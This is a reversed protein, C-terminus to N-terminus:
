LTINISHKSNFIDIWNWDPYFCFVIVYVITYVILITMGILGGAEETWEGGSLLAILNWIVMAILFYMILDLTHM